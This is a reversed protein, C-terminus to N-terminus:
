KFYFRLGLSVSLRSLDNLDNLQSIEKYLGVNKTIGILYSGEIGIALDQVPFFDFGSRVAIAPNIASANGKRDFFIYKNESYLIGASFGSIFWVAESTMKIRSSFEPGAYIMFLQDSMAGSRFLASATNDYLFNQSNSSQFYDVQIGIGNESWLYNTYTFNLQNSQSLHNYYSRLDSAMQSKTAFLLYSVGGSLSIRQKIRLSDNQAEAISTTFVLIIYLFVKQMRYLRSNRM